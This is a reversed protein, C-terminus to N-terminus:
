LMGQTFGRGMGMRGLFLGPAPARLVTGKNGDIFRHEESDEAMENERRAEKVNAKSRARGSAFACFTTKLIGGTFIGSSTLSWGMVMVAEAIRVM